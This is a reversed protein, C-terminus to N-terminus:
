NCCYYLTSPMPCCVSHCNSTLLIWTLQLLLAAIKSLLGGFNSLLKLQMKIDYSSFSQQQQQQQIPGALKCSKGWIQRHIAKEAKEEPPLQCSGFYFGCSKEWYTQRFLDFVQKKHDFVM